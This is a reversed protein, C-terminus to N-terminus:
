YLGSNFMLNSDKGYPVQTIEFQRNYVHSCVSCQVFDLPFRLENLAEEQSEPLNFATLPQSGQNFLISCFKSGCVPCNM